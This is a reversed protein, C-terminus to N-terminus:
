EHKINREVITYLVIIIVYILGFYKINTFFSILLAAWFSLCYICSILRTFFSNYNIFLFKPLNNNLGANKAKEYEKIVKINFFKLYEYVADTKLWIFIFSFAILSYLIAEKM